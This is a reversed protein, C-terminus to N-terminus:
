LFALASKNLMFSHQKSIYLLTYTTHVQVKKTRYTQLYMEKQLSIPNAKNQM